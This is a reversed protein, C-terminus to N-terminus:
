SSSEMPKWDPDEFYQPYLELAERIMRLSESSPAPRSLADAGILMDAILVHLAADAKPNLKCNSVLYNVEGRVGNAIRAAEDPDLGEGDGIDAFPAILAAIQRMGNRLPKDTAWKKGNNLTLAASSHHGGSNHAGEEHLRRWSLGTAAAAAVLVVVGAIIWRSRLSASPM